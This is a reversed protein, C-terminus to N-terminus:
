KSIIATYQIQEKQSVRLNYKGSVLNIGPIINIVSEPSDIKFTNMWLVTGSLNTIAVLIPEAPDMNKTSLMFQSDFPNPYCQIEFKQEKANQVALPSLDLETFDNEELWQIEKMFDEGNEQLFFSLDCDKISLDGIIIDGNKYPDATSYYFNVKSSPEFLKISMYYEKESDLYLEQTMSIKQWREGRMTGILIEQSHVKNKLELGGEYFELVGKVDSDNNKLKVAMSSIIKNENCQFAQGIEGYSIALNKNSWSQFLENESISKLKNSTIKESDLKEPMFEDKIGVSFTLDSFTFKGNVILSGLIYSDDLTYAIGFEKESLNLFEVAYERGAYVPVRDKITFTIKGAELKDPLGENNQHILSFQNNIIEYVNIYVGETGPNLESTFFSFHNLYGASCTVFSQGLAQGPNISLTSSNSTNSTVCGNFSTIGYIGSSLLTFSLIILIRM